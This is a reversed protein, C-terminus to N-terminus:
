SHQTLEYYTGYFRWLLFGCVALLLFFSWKEYAKPCGANLMIGFCSAEIGFTLAQFLKDKKSKFKLATMRITNSM